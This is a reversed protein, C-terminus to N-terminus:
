GLLAELRQILLGVDASFQQAIQYTKEAVARSYTHVTNNRAELYGFWDEVSDILRQKGAERFIDKLNNPEFQNNLKFYRRLTKWALEFTYEFRQITADRVLDTKPPLLADQLSSAAQKLSTLSLETKSM